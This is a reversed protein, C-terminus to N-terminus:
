ESAKQFVCIAAIRVSSAESRRCRLKSEEGSSWSLGFVPTYEYRSAARPWPVQITMIFVPKLQSCNGSTLGPLRRPTATLGRNGLGGPCAHSRAACTAASLHLVSSVAESILFKTPGVVRPRQDYPSDRLLGPVALELFRLYGGPQVPRRIIINVIAVRELADGLAM